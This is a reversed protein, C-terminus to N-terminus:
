EAKQRNMRKAVGDDPANKAAIHRWREDDHPTKLDKEMSKPYYITTIVGNTDAFYVKRYVIEKETVCGCIPILFLGASIAKYTLKRLHKKM